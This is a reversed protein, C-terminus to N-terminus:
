QLKRVRLQRRKDWKVIVPYVLVAALIVATGAYFGSSMKEADKFILVALVIGYV